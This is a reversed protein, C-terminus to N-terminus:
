CGKKARKSTNAIQLNRCFYQMIVGRVGRGSWSTLAPLTVGPSTRSPAPGRHIEPGGVLAFTCWFHLLMILRERFGSRGGKWGAVGGVGLEKWVSLLPGGISGSCRDLPWIRGTACSMSARHRRATVDTETWCSPQNRSRHSSEFLCIHRPHATAPLQVKHVHKEKTNVNKRM